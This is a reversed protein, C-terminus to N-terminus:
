PPSNNSVFELKALQSQPLVLSFPLNARCELGVLVRGATDACGRRDDLKAGVKGLEFSKRQALPYIQRDLLHGISGEDM